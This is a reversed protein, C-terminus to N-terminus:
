KTNEVVAVCFFNIAQGKNGTITFWHLDDAVEGHYSVYSGLKAYAMFWEARIMGPKEGDHSVQATKPCFYTKKSIKVQNLATMIKHGASLHGEIDDGNHRDPDGGIVAPVNPYEKVACPTMDGVRLMVVTDPDDVSCRDYHCAVFFGNTFTAVQRGIVSKRELHVVNTYSRGFENSYKSCTTLFKTFM